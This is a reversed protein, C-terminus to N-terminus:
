AAPRELRRHQSVGFNLDHGIAHAYIVPRQRRHGEPSTWEEIELRGVVLVANGKRLSLSVNTAFERFCKVTLWSTPGEEWQGDRLIRRSTALRFSAYDHGANTQGCDVHTGLRGTVSVITEM